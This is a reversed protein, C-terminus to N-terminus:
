APESGMTDIYHIIKIKLDGSIPYSEIKKKIEENSIGQERLRAITAKFIAEFGYDALANSILALVILLAIGGLMGLPGGLAALATTVAAAGAWGTAAMAVLLVLGPVGLAVVKDVIKDM